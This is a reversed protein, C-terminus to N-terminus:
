SGIKVLEKSTRILISGNVFAPTAWIEGELRNVAIKKYERGAAFVLTEGRTTSVYINGAAWIPSANYKGKLKETWINEGTKADICYLISETDITYLLNDYIVPTLLQLIPFKKRWIINSNLDGTGGPDVALLECYKDGEEPTVFSTYFYILGNYEVPMAITSDEGQPIFWVEEGTELDYANCVASGNSILLERSGSNIVIPTVYAKRGIELLPEYLSADRTAMWITKGTNKDLAYIHQVDTGEMHVFLKNGHLLLSSGPGQVHECQMDTREWVKKGTKTDICATGYRGFHVYVKGDEIAPTPTAYSNIAHKHYVTEPKFLDIKFINKGTKLDLCLAFMEKGDPTASTLWVQQGFVVPSSWARGEIPTHWVVNSSDSWEVPYTSGSAIGKLDSGRFHTWNDTVQDIFGTNLIFLVSITLIIYLNRKM